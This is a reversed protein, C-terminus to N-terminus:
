NYTEKSNLKRTNMSIKTQQRTWAVLKSGLITKFEMSIRKNKRLKPFTKHSSKQGTLRTESLARPKILSSHVQLQHVQKLLIKNTELWIRKKNTLIQNIQMFKRFEWKYNKLSRLILDKVRLIIRIKMLSPDAWHKNVLRQMTFTFPAKKSELQSFYSIVHPVKRLSKWCHLRIEPRTGRLNTSSQVLNLLMLTLRVPVSQQWSNRM